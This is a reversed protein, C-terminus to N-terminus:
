VQLVDYILWAAFFCVCLFRWLNKKWVMMEIVAENLERYECVYLM